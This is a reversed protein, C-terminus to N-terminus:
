MFVLVKHVYFAASYALAMDLLVCHCTCQVNIDQLWM